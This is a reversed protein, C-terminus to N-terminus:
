SSGVRAGAAALHEGLRYSGIKAWEIKNRTIPLTRRLQRFASESTGTLAENLAQQHEHEVSRILKIAAAAIASSDKGEVKGGDVEKSSELQVNGDEYYHVRASLSGKLAGGAAPLRWTSRWLGTWFNGVSYKGSSICAVLGIGDKDAFVGCRGEPYHESVYKSLAGDLASRADEVEGQVKEGEELIGAIRAVHDYEFVGGTRPDLYKAPAGTTTQPVRNYPTLLVDESAGEPKIPTLQEADYSAFAPGIGQQLLDDDALVSRVDNFVDNLEGPPAQVLFGSALKLRAEASM